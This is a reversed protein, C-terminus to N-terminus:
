VGRTRDHRRVARRGQWSDPLRVSIRIGTALTPQGRGDSRVLDRFHM